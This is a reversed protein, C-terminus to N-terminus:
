SQLVITALPRLRPDPVRPSRGIPRHADLRGLTALHLVPSSAQPAEIRHDAGGATASRVLLPIDSCHEDAAGDIGNAVFAPTAESAAGAAGCGAGLHQAEVSVHEGPVVCLVLQRATGMAALLVFVLWVRVLM